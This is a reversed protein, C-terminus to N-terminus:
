SANEQVVLALQVDDGVKVGMREGLPGVLVPAAVTRAGIRCDEDVRRM